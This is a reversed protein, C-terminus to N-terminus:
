GSPLTRRRRLFSRGPQRLARAFGQRRRPRRSSQDPDAEVAPLAPRVGAAPLFKTDGLASLEPAIGGIGAFAAVGFRGFLRRRYEVQATWSARDRYRGTEYGRLDGHAGYLCLDYFPGGKSVGCLSVHAAIVGSDGLPRYLTAAITLKDYSFDSGLGPSSFM